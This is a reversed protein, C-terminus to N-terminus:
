RERCLWELLQRTYRRNDAHDIYGTDREDSEDCIFGSDGGLVMRSVGDITLAFVNGPAARGPITALISVGAQPRCTLIHSSRFHLARVGETIPHRRIDNGDIRMEGQRRRGAGGCVSVGYAAGVKRILQRDHEDYPAHNTMLLLAGGSSLHGEIGRYEKQSFRFAPGPRRTLIVVLDVGVLRAATLPLDSTQPPEGLVGEAIALFANLRRGGHAPRAMAGRHLAAQYSRGDILAKL